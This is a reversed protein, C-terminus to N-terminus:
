YTFICPIRNSIRKVILRDWRRRLRINVFIIRYQENLDLSTLRTCKLHVCSSGTPLLQIIIYGIFYTIIKCTKTSKPKNNTNKLTTSIYLFAVGVANWETGSASCLVFCKNCTIRQFRTRAKNVHRSFRYLICM